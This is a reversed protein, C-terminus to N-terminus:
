AGGPTNQPSKLWERDVRVFWDGIIVVFGRSPDAKYAAWEQEILRMEDKVRSAAKAENCKLDLRCLANIGGGKTPALKKFDKVNHTVLVYGADVCTAAVLPDPTDTPLVTRLRVVEHGAATLAAGVSDAVNHDTFFPIGAGGGM